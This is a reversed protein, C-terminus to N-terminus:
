RQVMQIKHPFCFLQSPLQQILTGTGIVSSSDTFQAPVNDSSSGSISITLTENSEVLSDSSAAFNFTKSTEGSAFTISQSISSYDSNSATTNNSTVVINQVSDSGGTRSITVSGTSGEDISLDSISFYSLPVEAIGYRYAWSNQTLNAYDGGANFPDQPEIWWTDQNNGDAKM